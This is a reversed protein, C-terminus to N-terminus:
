LYKNIDSDALQSVYLLSTALLCVESFPLTRCQIYTDWAKGLRCNFCLECLILASIAKFSTHKHVFLFAQLNYVKLVANSHLDVCIHTQALGAFTVWQLCKLIQCHHNRDKQAISCLHCTTAIQTGLKLICVLTECAIYVFMSSFEICCWCTNSVGTASQSCLAM